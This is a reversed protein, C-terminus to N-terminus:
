SETHHTKQGHNTALRGLLRLLRCTTPPHLLMFNAAGCRAAERVARGLVGAAVADQARRQREALSPSM